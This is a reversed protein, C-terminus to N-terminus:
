GAMYVCGGDSGGHCERVLTEAESRHPQRWSAEGVLQRAEPTLHKEAILAVTEHGKCGWAKAPPAIVTLLALAGRLLMIKLNM